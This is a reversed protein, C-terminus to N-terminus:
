ITVGRTSVGRAGGGGGGDDAGGGQAGVGGLGRILVGTGGGLLIPGGGEEAAGGQALLGPRSPGAPGGIAALGGGPGTKAPSGNLKSSTEQNKLWISAALKGCLSDNYDLVFLCLRYGM